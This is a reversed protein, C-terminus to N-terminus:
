LGRPTLLTRNALESLSVSVGGVDSDAYLVLVQVQGEMDAPWDPFVVSGGTYFGAIVPHRSTQVVGINAYMEGSTGDPHGLVLESGPWPLYSADASAGAYYWRPNVETPVSTGVGFGLIGQLEYNFRIDLNATVDLVVFPPVPDGLLIPGRRPQPGSPTAWGADFPVFGQLLKVPIAEVLQLDVDTSPAVSPTGEGIGLAQEAVKIRAYLERLLIDQHASGATPFPPVTAPM